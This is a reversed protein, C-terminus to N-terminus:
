LLGTVISKRPLGKGNIIQSYVVCWTKIGRLDVADLDVAVAGLAGRLVLVRFTVGAGTLVTVLGVGSAFGTSIGLAVVTM